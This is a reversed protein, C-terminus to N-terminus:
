GNGPAAIWSKTTVGQLTRTTQSSIVPLSVYIGRLPRGDADKAYEVSNLGITKQPNFADTTFGLGNFGNTYSRGTPTSTLWLDPKGLGNVYKFGDYRFQEPVSNQDLSLNSRLNGAIQTDYNGPNASFDQDYYTTGLLYGATFATEAYQRMARVRGSDTLLDVDRISNTVYFEALAAALPPRQLYAYPSDTDRYGYSYGSNWASQYPTNNLPNILSQSTGFSNVDFTYNYDSLNYTTVDGTSIANFGWQPTTESGSWYVWGTGPKWFLTYQGKYIDLGLLADGVTTGTAPSYSFDLRIHVCGNNKGDPSAVNEAVVTFRGRSIVNVWQGQYGMGTQYDIIALAPDNTATGNADVASFRRERNPDGAPPLSEDITRIRPLYAVSGLSKYSFVAGVIQNPVMSSQWTTTANSTPPLYSKWSQNFSQDYIATDVGRALTRNGDAIGGLFNTLSETVVSFSPTNM